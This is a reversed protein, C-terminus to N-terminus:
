RGAFAGSMSSLLEKSVVSALDKPKKFDYIEVMRALEQLDSHTKESHEGDINNIFSEINNMLLRSM